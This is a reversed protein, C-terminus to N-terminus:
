VLVGHLTRLEFELALLTGRDDKHLLFSHNLDTGSLVRGVEFIQGGSLPLFVLAVRHTHLTGLALCDLDTLFPGLVRLAFPYDQFLGVLAKLEWLLALPIDL